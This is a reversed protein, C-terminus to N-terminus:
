KHRKKRGLILYFGMGICWAIVMVIADHWTFTFGTTGAAKTAIYVFLFAAAGAWARRKWIPM